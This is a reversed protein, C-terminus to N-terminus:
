KKKRRKFKAKKQVINSNLLTDIDVDEHKEIRVDETTDVKFGKYKGGFPNFTHYADDVEEEGQAEAGEEVEKHEPEITTSGIHKEMKVGPEQKIKIQGKNLDTSNGEENEPGETVDRIAVTTWEVLGM